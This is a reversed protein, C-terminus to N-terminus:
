EQHYTLHPLTGDERNVIVNIPIELRDGNIDDEVYVLQGSSNVEYNSLQFWQRDILDLDAAM